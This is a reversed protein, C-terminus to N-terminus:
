SEDLEGFVEEITAIGDDVAADQLADILHVLGDYIHFLGNSNQAENLCYAKQERLLPWDMRRLLEESYTM